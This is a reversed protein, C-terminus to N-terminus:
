SASDFDQQPCDASALIFPDGIAVQSFRGAMQVKATLALHLM